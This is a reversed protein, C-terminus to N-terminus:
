TNKLLSHLSTSNFDYHEGLKCFFVKMSFLSFCKHSEQMIETM